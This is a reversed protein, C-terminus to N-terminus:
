SMDSLVGKGAAHKALWNQYFEEPTQYDLAQHPRVQEYVRNWTLLAAELGGLDAPLDEVQYFEDEDTRFSREVQGNGQPYNPRNFYHLLQLEQAALRFAGLFESGGDSQVAAVEFPFENVVRHLFEAGQQSSLSRALGVVRKRTFCDVAGFHYVLRGGGLSVHKSDM